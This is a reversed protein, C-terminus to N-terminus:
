SRPGLLIQDHAILAQAKMKLAYRRVTANKSKRMWATSVAVSNLPLLARRVRALDLTM